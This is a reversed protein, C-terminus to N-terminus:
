SLQTCSIVLAGVCVMRWTQGIAVDPFWKRGSMGSGGTSYSYKVFDDNFEIVTITYIM